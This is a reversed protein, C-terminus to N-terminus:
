PKPNLGQAPCVCSDALPSHMFLHILLYINEGEEREVILKFLTKKTRKLFFKWLISGPYSLYLLENLFDDFDYLNVNDYGHKFPSFFLSLFGYQGMRHSALTSLAESVM